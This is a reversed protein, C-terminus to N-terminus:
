VQLIYIILCCYVFSMLYLLIQFIMIRFNNLRVRFVIKRSIALEWFIVKKDLYKKYKESWLYVEYTLPNICYTEHYRYRYWRPAIELFSLTVRGGGGGCVCTFNLFSTCVRWVKMGSFASICKNKSKTPIELLIMKLQVSSWYRVMLEVWFINWFRLGDLYKKLLIQKGCM